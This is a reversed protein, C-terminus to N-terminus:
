LPPHRRSRRRAWVSPLAAIQEGHGLQDRPDVLTLKVVLQSQSRGRNASSPIRNLCGLFALSEGVDLNPILDTDLVRDRVHANAAQHLSSTSRSSLAITM